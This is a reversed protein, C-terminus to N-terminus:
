QRAHHPFSVNACSSESAVCFFLTLLRGPHALNLLSSVLIQTSNIKQKFADIKGELAKMKIEDGKRKGRLDDREQGFM